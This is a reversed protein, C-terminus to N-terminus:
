KRANNNKKLLNILDQIRFKGKRADYDFFDRMYSPISNVRDGERLIPIYKDEILFKNLEETIVSFEYGVGGKNNEAKNKYKKTFIVLVIDAQIISKKMTQFVKMGPIFDYQDIIVDFDVKLKKAINKVWKKHEENDWSYSIFIKQKGKRINKGTLLFYVLRIDINLLGKYKTNFDDFSINEFSPLYFSTNGIKISDLNDQNFEVSKTTKEIKRNFYNIGIDTLELKLNYLSEPLFYKNKDSPLINLNFCNVFKNLKLDEIIMSFVEVSTNMREFIIEVDGKKIVNGYKNLYSLINHRPIM